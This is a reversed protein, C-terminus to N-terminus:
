PHGPKFHITHGKANSGSVNVHFKGHKEHDGKQTQNRLKRESNNHMVGTSALRRLHHDAHTTSTVHRDGTPKTTISASGDSHYKVKGMSGDGHAHKAVQHAPHNKDFGENLSYERFRKM